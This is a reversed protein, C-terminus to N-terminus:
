EAPASAPPPTPRTIFTLETDVITVERPRPDVLRIIGIATIAAPPNDKTPAIQGPKLIIIVMTGSADGIILRDSDSQLLSGTFEALKGQMSIAPDALNANMLDVLSEANQRAEKRIEAATVKDALKERWAAPATAPAPKSAAVTAHDDCAPLAILTFTTLLIALIWRIRREHNTHRPEHTTMDAKTKDNTMRIEDNLSGLLM